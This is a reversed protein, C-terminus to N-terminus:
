NLFLDLLFTGEGTSLATNGTFVGNPQGPKSSGPINVVNNGRAVVDHSAAKGTFTLFLLREPDSKDWRAVKIHSFRSWNQGRKFVVTVAIFYIDWYACHALGGACPFGGVDSASFPWLKLCVWCGNGLLSRALKQKVLAIQSCLHRNELYHIRGWEADVWPTNAPAFVGSSM